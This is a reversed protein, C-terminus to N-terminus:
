NSASLCLRKREKRKKEKRKKEKRKKEKRKKEKRKKDKRTKDKRKKEKRKKEKRKKEKRKKKKEKRNKENRKTRESCCISHAPNLAALTALPADDAVCLHCFGFISVPHAPKEPVGDCSKKLRIVTIRKVLDVRELNQEAMTYCSCMTFADQGQGISDAYAPNCKDTSMHTTELSQFSFKQLSCAHQEHPGTTM